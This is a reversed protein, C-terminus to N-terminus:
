LSSILFLRDKTICLRYIRRLIILKRLNQTIIKHLLGDDATINLLLIKFKELSAGIFREGQSARLTSIHYQVTRICYLLRESRFNFRAPIFFHYFVIHTPS